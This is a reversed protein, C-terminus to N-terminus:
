VEGGVVRIAARRERHETQRQRFLLNAGFIGLMLAGVVEIIVVTWSFATVGTGRAGPFADSFASWHPLLHAAATGLAIPFGTLAAALPAGRHRAFVLVLTIVGAATSIVGAWYVEPTLVGVGRRIHDAAHLALGAGYVVAASRLLLGRSSWLADETRAALIRQAGPGAV